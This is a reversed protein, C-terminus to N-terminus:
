FAGFLPARARRPSRMLSHTGRMVRTGFNIRPHPVLGAEYRSLHAAALVAMGWFSTPLRAGSLLMRGRAKLSGVANEASANGNPDYAATTTKHIAHQRCWENFAVNVFESGRDSHIRFVLERPMSGHEYRVQALLRQIEPGAEDKSTLLAAYILPGLPKDRPEKKGKMKETALDGVAEEPEAEHQNGSAEDPEAEQQEPLDTGVCANSSSSM